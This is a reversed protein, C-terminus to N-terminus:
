MGLGELFSIVAENFAHPQEWHPVHGGSDIIVVHSSDVSSGILEATSSPIVADNSGWVVLTPIRSANLRSLTELSESSSLGATDELILSIVLSPKILALRMAIWGGM